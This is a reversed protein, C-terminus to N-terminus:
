FQYCIFPGHIPFITFFYFLLTMQLDKYHHNFLFEELFHEMKVFYMLLIQSGDWANGRVTYLGKM